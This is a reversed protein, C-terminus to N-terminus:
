SARGAVGVVISSVDGLGSLHQDLEQLFAEPDQPTLFRIPQGMTGDDGFQAILTKTGGIDIATIMFNTYLLKGNARDPIIKYMPYLLYNRPSHICFEVSAPARRGTM